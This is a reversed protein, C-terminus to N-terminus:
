MHTMPGCTVAVGIANELDVRVYSIDQHVQNYLFGFYKWSCLKIKAVSLLIILNVTSSKGYHFVLFLWVIISMLLPYIDCSTVGDRWIAADAQSSPSKWVWIMVGDTVLFIFSGSM